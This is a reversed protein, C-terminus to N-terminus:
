ITIARYWAVLFGTRTRATWRLPTTAIASRTTRSRGTLMTPAILLYTQSNAPHLTISTPEMLSCTASWRFISGGRWEFSSITGTGTMPSNTVAGTLFSPTYCSIDLNEWRLFNTVYHQYIEGMFFTNTMVSDHIFQDTAFNDVSGIGAEFRCNGVDLFVGNEGLGSGLTEAQWNIFNVRQMSWRPIVMRPVTFTGGPGGTVYTVAHHFLGWGEGTVASETVYPGPDRIGGKLTMNSVTLYDSEQAPSTAYFMRGRLPYDDSTRRWVSCGLLVTQGVGDGFFTLQTGNTIWIAGTAGDDAANGSATNNYKDVMVLNTMRPATLMYTGTPVYINTVGAAKAASIASRFAPTNDTGIVCDATIDRSTPWIVSATTGVVNTIWGVYGEHNTGSTQPGAYFIQVQKGIDSASLDPITLTYGNSACVATTQRADGYAGYNVVNAVPPPAAPVPPPSQSSLPLIM